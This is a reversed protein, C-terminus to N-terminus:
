ETDRVGTPKAVRSRRPTAGMGQFVSPAGALSQSQDHLARTLEAIAPNDFSKAVETRGLLAVLDVHPLTTTRALEQLETLTDAIAPNHIAKALETMRDAALLDIQMRSVEAPNMRLLQLAVDRHTAKEHAIVWEKLMEIATDHDLRQGSAAALASLLENGSARPVAYHDAFRQARTALSDLDVLGRHEADVIVGGIHGADAGDRLLDVITREVSTVPLGDVVVIEDPDLPGPQRHLEVWQERTTLRGPVTLEVKPAPIDGLEHLLCASRHSVVGDKTGRGDREWAPRAPDLRLWAVRIELHSPRVAGPLLYVGRGANELLEAECLRLLTVGDVGHTKALAATILGYQDAALGGL